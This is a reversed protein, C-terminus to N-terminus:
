PSGPRLFGLLRRDERRFRERSDTATIVGVLYPAAGATFSVAPRGVSPRTFASEQPGAATWRVAKVRVARGATLGGLSASLHPDAADVQRVGGLVMVQGVPATNDAVVVVLTWGLYGAGASGRRASGRRAGGRVPGAAARWSGAGYRAVLGTVDAFAQRVAVKPRGPVGLSAMAAATGAVRQYHGGPGRLEIAEQPSGATWAWYLGAWVVRGPLTLNASGIRALPADGSGALSVGALRSGVTVVTYRGSAAFQAPFGAATVGAAGRARVLRGGDGVSIAPAGRAPADAAVAV